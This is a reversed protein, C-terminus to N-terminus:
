LAEKIGMLRIIETKTYAKRWEDLNFVLVGTNVYNYPNKMKMEEQCYAMADPVAGNLFGQFVM